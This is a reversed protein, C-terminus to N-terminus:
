DTAASFCSRPPKNISLEVHFSATMQNKCTKIMKENAFLFTRVAVNLQVSNKTSLLTERKLTAACAGALEYVFERPKKFPDCCRCSAADLKAM